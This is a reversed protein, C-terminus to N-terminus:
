FGLGFSNKINTMKVKCCVHNEYKRDMGQMQKSVGMPKYIPPLEFLMDGDFKIPLFNIGEIKMTVYDLFRLKNFTHQIQSMAKLSDVDNCMVCTSNLLVLVHTESPGQSLIIKQECADFVNSGIGFNGNENSLDSLDVFTSVLLAKSSRSHMLQDNPDVKVKIVLFVYNAVFAFTGLTFITDHSNRVLSKGIIRYRGNNVM